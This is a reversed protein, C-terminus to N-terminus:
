LCRTHLQPLTISIIPLLKKRQMRVIRLNLNGFSTNAMRILVKSLDNEYIYLPSAVIEKLIPEAKIWQHQTVFKLWCCNVQKETQFNKRHKTIM